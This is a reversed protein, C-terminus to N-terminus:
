KWCAAATASIGDALIVAAIVLEAFVYVVVVDDDADADNTVVQPQTTRNVTLVKTPTSRM